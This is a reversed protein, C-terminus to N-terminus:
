VLTLPAVGLPVSFKECWIWIENYQGIDLGSKLAYAQRGSNTRLPSLIANADFGDRGLAVKPDPAGDFFFDDELEIVWQGGTRVVRAHGNTVHNSKGTFVGRATVQADSGVVPAATASSKAKPATSACGAVAAVAGLGLLSLAARRSPNAPAHDHRM